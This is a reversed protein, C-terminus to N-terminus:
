RGDQYMGGKLLKMTRYFSRPRKYSCRQETFKDVEEETILGKKFARQAAIYMIEKPTKLKIWETFNM